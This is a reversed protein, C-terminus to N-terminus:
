MYKVQAVLRELEPDPVASQLEWATISSVSVVNGGASSADSNLTATVTANESRAADPAPLGAIGAIGAVGAGGGAGGDNAKNPNARVGGDYNRMTHVARGGQVFSEM